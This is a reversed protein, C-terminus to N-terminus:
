KDEYSRRHSGGGSTAVTHFDLLAIHAWPVSIGNSGFFQLHVSHLDESRPDLPPAHTHTERHTTLPSLTFHLTFHMGCIYITV